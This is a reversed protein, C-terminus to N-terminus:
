VSREDEPIYRYPDNVARIRTVAVAYVGSTDYEAALLLARALNQEAQTFVRDREFSGEPSTFKYNAALDNLAKRWAEVRALSRLKLMHSCESINIAGYRLLTENVAESYSGADSAGAAYGLLVAVKGLEAQMFDALSKESYSGPASM